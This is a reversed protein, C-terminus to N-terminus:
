TRNVFRGGTTTDHISPVRSYAATFNPMVFPARSMSEVGCAMVLHDEGSAVLRGGMAVVEFGSGCLRNGTTDPM